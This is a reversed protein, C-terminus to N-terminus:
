QLGRYQKILDRDSLVHNSRRGLFYYGSAADLAGPKKNLFLDLYKLWFLLLRTALTVARRARRSTVASYLLYQVSWSLAMAPGCVVGSDIEDFSRFLRRHGLHTFRTFDYRGAHVQQMFPTEAYVLGAEKLVRHAEAVCRYPDVVAELVAQVIIGDFSGSAFPLDHADCILQTRPGFTIDTDVFEILPQSLISDMGAGPVRGGIVLVRPAPSNALLLKGFRKYNTAAVANLSIDPLFRSAARKLPSAPHTYTSRNETVDAIKFISNAENILVPVGGVVPFRTGCTGECALSSAETALTGGCTPCRLMELHSPRLRHRATAGDLSKAPTSTTEKTLLGKM